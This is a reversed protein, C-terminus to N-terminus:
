EKTYGKSTMCLKEIDYRAGLGVLPHGASSMAKIAEMRCAAYDQEQQSVSVGPKAWRSCGLFAAGLAAVILLGRIM